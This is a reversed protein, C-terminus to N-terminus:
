HGRRSETRSIRDIFLDLLSTPSAKGEVKEGMLFGKVSLHKPLREYSGSLPDNVHLWWKM